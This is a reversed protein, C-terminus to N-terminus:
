HDKQALKKKAKIKEGIFDYHPDSLVLNYVDEAEKLTLQSDEAKSIAFSALLENKSILNKEIDPNLFVQEYESLERDLSLVEKNTFPLTQPAFVFQSLFGTSFPRLITTDM